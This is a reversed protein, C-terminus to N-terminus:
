YSIAYLRIDNVTNAPAYSVGTTSDTFAWLYLRMTANTNNEIDGVFGSMILPSNAGSYQKSTVVQGSSSANIFVTNSTSLGLFLGPQSASTIVFQVLCNVICASQSPIDIYSSTLVWQTNSVTITEAVVFGKILSGVPSKWIAVGQTNGSTLVLGETQTTDDIRIAGGTLSKIHLKENPSILGVGLDGAGTVVVDDTTNNGVVTNGLADIHFLRQPADTNIGIQSYSLTVALLGLLIFIFKMMM